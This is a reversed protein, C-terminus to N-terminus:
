ETGRELSGSLLLGELQTSAARLEALAELSQLHTQGYTRQVTLMQLYSIEGADLALRTLRLTEETRPLIQERYRNAQQRATEYRQYMTGIQRRIALETRRAAAGAASAEGEAQRIAGQNRNIIPLAMTTQIGVIDSNSSNDHQLLLQVDLNPVVQALERDVQWRARQVSAWAAALEPHESIIRATLDHLDLEPLDTAANGTVDQLAMDPDGLLTALRRWAGRRNAEANEVLVQASQVEVEAQLQDVKTLQQAKILAEVSKAAQSSIKLLESTLVVRRQAVLLDFYALRVDTLVRQQAARLLHEARQIEWCAAQQALQLKGATVFEQGLYVGQQGAAGENGIESGAYGAVLNPPLGAQVYKGRMAEVRAAAESIAPNAAMAMGQLQELTLSNSQGAIAAPPRPDDATPQPAPILEPPIILSSPEGAPQSHSVPLVSPPQANRNSEELPLTSMGSLTISGVIGNPGVTPSAAPANLAPQAQGVGSSHPVPSIAAQCGAFATLLTIAIARVALDKSLLMTGDM